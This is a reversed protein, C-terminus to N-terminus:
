KIRELKARIRDQERKVTEMESQLKVVGVHGSANVHSDHSKELRAIIAKERDDLLRMERQLVTDLNAYRAKSDEFVWATDNALDALKGNFNGMILSGIGGIILFILTAFAILLNYQPKQANQQNQSILKLDSGIQDMHNVMNKIQTGQSSLLQGVGSLQDRIEGIDKDHQSLKHEHEASM